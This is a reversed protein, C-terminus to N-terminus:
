MLGGGGVILGLVILIAGVLFEGRILAVVGFVFLLVALIFLLTV